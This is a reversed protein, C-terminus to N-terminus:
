RIIEIEALDPAVQGASVACVHCVDPALQTSTDRRPHTRASPPWYRNSDIPSTASATPSAPVLSGSSM